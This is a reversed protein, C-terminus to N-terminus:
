WRDETTVIDVFRKRPVKEVVVGNTSINLTFANEEKDLKAVIINYRGLLEPFETRFVAPGSGPITVQPARLGHIDLRLTKGSVKPEVIMEYRFNSFENTTRLGILTVYHDERENYRLTVLLRYEIPFVPRVRKGQKMAALNASIM